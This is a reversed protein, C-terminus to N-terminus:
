CYTSQFDRAINPLRGAEQSSREDGEQRDGDEGRRGDFKPMLIILAALGGLISILGFLESAPIPRSPRWFERQAQSVAWGVPMATPTGCRTTDGYQNQCTPAAMVPAAATLALGLAASLFLARM